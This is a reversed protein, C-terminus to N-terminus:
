FGRVWQSGDYRHWEVRGTAREVVILRTDQAHTGSNLHRRSTLYFGGLESAAGNRRFTVAPVGGSMKTFTVEAGGISHMSATGRGIVVHDGLPVARIRENGDQSGDNNRDDHIRITNGDPDIMVIIHHQRTVAARQAGILSMGVGRMASDMRYRQVDINPLAFAALIGILTVVLVLEILTYGAAPFARRRFTNRQM